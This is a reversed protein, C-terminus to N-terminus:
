IVEYPIIRPNVSSTAAITSGPSYQSFRRYRGCKEIQVNEKNDTIFILLQSLISLRAKWSSRSTHKKRWPSPKDGARQKSQVNLKVAANRQAFSLRLQTLDYQATRVGRKIIAKPENETSCYWLRRVQLDRKPRRVNLLVITPVQRM